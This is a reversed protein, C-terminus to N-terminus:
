AYPPWPPLTHRQEMSQLCHLALGLGVHICAPWHCHCTHMLMPVRLHLRVDTSLHMCVGGDAAIYESLVVPHNEPRVKDRRASAQMLRTHCLSAHSNSAQLLATKMQCCLWHYIQFRM